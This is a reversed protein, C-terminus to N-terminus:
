KYKENFYQWNIKDYNKCVIKLEKRVQTLAFGLLNQGKWKNPNKINEDEVSMKIGWISDYPSAEVLIKDKTSFLYLMLDKNQIFKLYNGNLVISYKYRNWKDEDFDKVKRGLSKIKIPENCNMIQKKINEDKFLAAKQAMMYQEMCCYKNTGEGFDSKWWQSFCSISLQGTKLPKHGWFFVYDIKQSKNYDKKLDLIGYEPNGSKTWLMVNDIYYEDYSYKNEDNKDKSYFGRWQKPEPFMKKYEEQGAEDFSNFWDVWDYLYHEGYGMRWGISYQRINPYMLWLPPMLNSLTYEKSM